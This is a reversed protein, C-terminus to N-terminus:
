VPAASEGAVQGQEVDTDLTGVRVPSAGCDPRVTVEGGLQGAQLDLGVVEGGLGDEAQGLELDQDLLLPLTEVAVSLDVLQTRPHPWHQLGPQVRDGPQDPRHLGPLVLRHHLLGGPQGREGVLVLQVGPVAVEGELHYLSIQRTVSCWTLREERRGSM